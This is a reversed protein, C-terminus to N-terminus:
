AAAAGWGPDPGIAEGATVRRRPYRDQMGTIEGLQRFIDLQRIDHAAAVAMEPDLGGGRLDLTDRRNTQQQRRDM